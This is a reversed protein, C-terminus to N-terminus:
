VFPSHVHNLYYSKEDKNANYITDSRDFTNKKMFDVEDNVASVEKNNDNFLDNFAEEESSIFGNNHSPYTFYAPTTEPTNLLEMDSPYTIPVVKSEDFFHSEKYKSKHKKVPIALLELKSSEARSHGGPNHFFQKLAVLTALIFSVKSLFFNFVSLAFLKKLLFHDFLLKLGGVGYAFPKMKKLIGKKNKKRKNKKGKRKGKKGGQDDFEQVEIYQYGPHEFSSHGPSSALL